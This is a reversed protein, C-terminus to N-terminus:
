KEPLVKVWKGTKNAFISNDYMAEVTIAPLYYDGQYAANLLVTFTHQKNPKLDFYHMTRDDRIDLYDVAENRDASGDLRTNIIEWGSPFIQTLALESYDGKLGPNTVSVEAHFNTGQQLRTVELNNGDSDMYRVSMQINRKIPKEAGEMPIGSRIIRAFVPAEGNNEIQISGNQDANQLMVQHVFDDNSISTSEGNVDVKVNTEGDLGFGKVYKAIAVFAYATTQTSMWRDKDGMKRAINMLIEFAEEKKKLELLAEMIMAQDRTNSGFSYRYDKLTSDAKAPLGAILNLAQSEYGAMAYALALRWKASRRVKESEKMRNMAGMAPSGALALTYLRYAQILDNDDDTSLNGWADAKQTQFNVWSSIFGDPVAYGANKAELLFHGAYNTGWNSAYDNGPWYAFGGGPLQFTKLRKIGAEINRQIESQRDDSLSILHDLFVQPFVSSTTQEICGHPYRILYGLRQEINLPPLTSIEVSAANKGLIGIPQYDQQWSSGNSVVQDLVSVTMPNRPIVNMEIDYVAELKGSTATVKVKGIGFTEKAKIDFYLVKDGAKSFSARQTNGSTATLAGSTEVEVSVNKINDELAFINVPLKMSEGPGAVRPLTALVMLPQKVPTVQDANGYAGNSAAVVMTKVSGIYQPMQLHHTKTEGPGLEFPGLFKVVPKFRNAEKEDKENFEDDGGIALLHDMKGTFAGIIDDYVDWTKIGLAERAYFSSWPDPTKYNTIDLLGEDVVAITYAMPKKSQESIDISFRQEPRLEDPMNIIPQLTTGPDVVKISQVGYLRIPLDNATQAHPQIMTLHAYINPAMEPTAEFSISTNEQEADVWFTQLVEGGTELSVLISNGQTSPISLAIQDGVQYTEKEVAFDLMSAGDLEGRKGKGAWGPWDLYVVQGSSHGSVPDKIKLYYRGWKPHNVRLKWTGEGNTTNLKGKAVPSHYSRGVYNSINDYSTDWWWRWSLKYLEVKLGKRSIPNGDADVTVVRVEHDQDTLLIGRKDGEPVKLGVFSSYPFYPVTTNSISFDGGEEYVKGFLMAKLAGPANNARGLDFNVRAYGESNVRGEYVTERSSYFDKSGDDFSFNPYGKFATKIPVLKVEYEAKLNGATAGSLWRVNLNGTVNRDNASFKEQAFELNIKLRNPKIAEIKVTKYFTAAGVKAKAQWNGTPADSDTVFDFRYMNGVAESSIKRFALQNNPNYLEMVVPHGAPLESETSELIFGLHVTDAPRWVGREGYVFGKLGNQVETGSINFNSLSLSSGDDLKLYGTQNGREAVLVFPKGSPKLKLKGEADTKGSAILQQQYDYVRISTGDTPKADLLNTTFISLVGQDRRKAIIGLDSALLVKKVSRRNGYYSDSCPNDREQWNYGPSYYYEYSDWYSSEEESDWNDLETDLVQIDESESCFYLSHRKQFGISIQYIAGAETVLIDELNLTYRNWQNLNTVGSTNLPVTKRAIPRGVRKLQSTGGLGNVQLYQLANDAFIRVITVDVASLGVAEFPLVLGKSNPIIARQDKSVLRVQPKVQTFQLTTKYDEKLEFGAVNKVSENITLTMKSKVEQTPYIKLENLNVVLRPKRQTGSLTVLGNLNQRPNIPDSFTVSIYKEKGEVIRSSLVKYNDLSPIDINLKEEKNIKIPNGTASITVQSGQKSKTVDEITFLHINDKSTHEWNIKLTNNNQTASLMKEIQNSAAYDATQLQGEVKVKTLDTANYLKLGGVKIEFNQVLTQFVFRFERKDRDINPLVTKLDAKVEYKQGNKLPESPQFTITRNNEWTTTGELTPSFSFINDLATGVLSDAVSKTLKLRIDSTVSIAGATFSSVHDVFLAKPSSFNDQSALIQNGQGSKGCGWIFFLAVILTQSISKM